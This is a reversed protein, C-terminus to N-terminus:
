EVGVIEVDALAISSGDARILLLRGFADLGGYVGEVEGDTASARIRKGNWWAALRDSVRGRLSAFSEEGQLDRFARELRALAEALVETRPVRRGTELFVSTPPSKAVEPLESRKQLINLGIGVVVHGEDGPSKPAAGECLIGGLKRWPLSNQIKSKPNQIKEQGEGRKSKRSDSIQFGFDFIVVDNPWKITANLGAARELAEACALGAGLAVWGIREPPLGRYRLLVSFLLAKAPPASWSRGRRGRGATQQDAIVVLGHPAGARAARVAIENTSDAVAHFELRKGVALTPLASAFADRGADNKFLPEPKGARVVPKSM